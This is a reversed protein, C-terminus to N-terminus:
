DHRRSIRTRGDWLVLKGDELGHGIKSGSADALELVEGTAGFHAAVRLMRIFSRMGRFRGSDPIYESRAFIRFYVNAPEGGAFVRDRLATEEEKTGEDSKLLRAVLADTQDFGAIKMLPHSYAERWGVQIGAPNAKCGVLDTLPADKLIWSGYEELKGLLVPALRPFTADLSALERDIRRCDAATLREEQLASDLGILAKEQLGASVRQAGEDGDGAVDEAFKLLDLLLEAGEGIKGQQIRMAAHDRALNGLALIRGLFGEEADAGNQRERIRVWGVDARHTGCQMADVAPAYKNLRARNDEEDDFGQLLATAHLYDDWANGPAPTGRLVPRPRFRSDALTRIEAVRAELRNWRQRELSWRWIVVTAAIAVLGGLLLAGAKLVSTRVM